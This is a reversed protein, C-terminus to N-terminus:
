PHGGASANSELILSLVVGALLGLQLSTGLVLQWLDGDVAAQGLTRNSLHSVIFQAGWAGTVVCFAMQFFHTPTITWPALPAPVTRRARAASSFQVRWLVIAGVIWLCCEVATAIQVAPPIPDPM